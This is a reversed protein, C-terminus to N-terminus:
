FHEEHKKRACQLTIKNLSFKKIYGKTFTNLFLHSISHGRTELISFQCSREIVYQLIEAYRHETVLGPGPLFQVTLFCGFIESYLFKLNNTPVTLRKLPEKRINQTEIERLRLAYIDSTEGNINYVKIRNSSELVLYSRVIYVM